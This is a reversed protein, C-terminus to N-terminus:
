GRKLWSRKRGALVGLAGVVIALSAPEPVVTGHVEFGYHGRDRGDRRWTVGADLSFWGVYCSGDPFEPPCGGDPGGFSSGLYNSGEGTAFPDRAGILYTGPDLRIQLGSVRYIYHLRGFYSNGTPTRTDPGIASLLLKGPEGDRLAYIYVESRGSHVWADDEVANYAYGTILWGPERVVIDDVVRVDPFRPPSIATFAQRRPMIDNDWLLDGLAGNALSVAFLFLVLRLMTRM